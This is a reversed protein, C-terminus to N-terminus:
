SADRPTVSFWAPGKPKPEGNMLIWEHPGEAKFGAESFLFMAPNNRDTQIFRGVFRSVENLENLIHSLMLHELGFGMARCSMVFSEFIAANDQVELIVSAVLGLTGFKDSLEAVYVRHAPSKIFSELNAKSYRITTTNFQNTRQVLESIRDLDEPRGRGIKACLGLSAMMAPYDLQPNLKERRQARARYLATRSRAEETQKTNPFQLLLNLSQWTFLDHSDLTRVKPLQSFVLGREEPSDDILIFSDLGLDLESAVEQISSVKPEWSIKQLVFDDPVLTMESWRINQPDNKSVAVLLIGSDKLTRLLQQRDLHHTVPGDAMVGDWLTNDFDILLVKAKKMAQYSRLINAYTVSLFAGFQSTHFLARAAIHNPVASMECQRYGKETAVRAEDIILCNTTNMAMEEIASNLAGLVSQQASSFPALFGLRKRWKKLPLGSVNHLLFPADTYTRLDELFSRMISVLGSIRRATEEQSLAHAELMLSRYLPLGEYSLFSVAILDVPTKELFSVIQETSLAKGLVASFYLCRMDLEIGVSRCRSPLFVRVENMLCDGIALLRLPNGSPETLLPFHLENLQAQLMKVNQSGTEMGDLLISVDEQLLEQFFSKRVEPSAKHPAYRLREDLYIDKFVKADTRLYEILLNLLPTLFVREMEARDINGVGEIAYKKLREPKFHSAYWRSIIESRRIDLSEILAVDQQGRFRIRRLILSVERRWSEVPVSKLEM